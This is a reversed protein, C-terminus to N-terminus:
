VTWSRAVQHEGGHGVGPTANIEGYSADVAGQGRPVACGVGPAPSHTTGQHILLMYKRPVQQDPNDGM